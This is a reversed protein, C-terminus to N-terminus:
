LFCFCCEYVRKNNFLCRTLSAEKRKGEEDRDFCKEFSAEFAM